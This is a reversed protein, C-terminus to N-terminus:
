RNGATRSPSIIMSCGSHSFLVNEAGIFIQVGDGRGTADLMRLMTEKTELAEFLGRVRELDSLATVDELLRSQGRVILQGANSGGSGAWTALGAAVVKRSLEDLQTKQQEIEQLVEQRAEDLTRGALKASLFNSM